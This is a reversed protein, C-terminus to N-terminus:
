LIAGEISCSNPNAKMFSVIRNFSNEKGPRFDCVAEKNGVIFLANKGRSLAVNLRREDKLFGIKNWSNSRVLSYFVIAAESGQFADINDIKIEINTWKPSDPNIDNLLLEKQASYGSIVAVEIKENFEKNKYTENINELHRLIVKSELRNRFSKNVEEELNSKEYSTDLWIVQKDYNLHHKRKSDDARSKIDYKPYFVNNVLKSINSHMRFQSLLTEQAPGGESKEFIEEFLSKELIKKNLKLNFENDKALNVIPPLQKHDGVLIIKKGLLMPLLLEPATARAAEDIIVWDYRLNQLVHRSAIGVCTSAVISAERAFIDDFEDILGIRNNWDCIIEVTKILKQNLLNEDIEEKKIHKNKKLNVQLYKNVLKDNYLKSLFDYTFSTSNSKVEDAWQSIQEAALFNSSEKSIKDSNGIRIIRKEQHHKVINKLLHDVAVHSPSTILVKAESDELYIQNIIETIITSKGTGPPGQILFLDRTKLADEIVKLNTHDIEKNVLEINLDINNISLISPDLLIEILNKNVGNNDELMYLANNYRKLVNNSIDIKAEGRRSLETYEVNLDFAVIILNDKIERIMGVSKLKKSDKLSLKLYDGEQILNSDFYNQMKVKLLNKKEDYEISEYIGLNERHNNIKNIDRIVDKWEQVLKNISASKRRNAEYKVLNKNIDTILTDFEKKLHSKTPINQTLDINLPLDIGKEKEFENEAYTDISFVRTIRFYGLENNPVIQYRIEDGILYYTNNPTKYISADQLSREIYNKVNYFDVNSIKGIQVLNTGVIRPVFIKLSGEKHSSLRIEQELDSIFNLTSAYRNEINPNTANQIIKKIENGYKLNQIEVLFEEEIEPPEIEAILYFLICGISYIDSRADIKRGIKHEPSAYRKTIYDKLTLNSRYANLDLIKSIGFDIVKIKKEENILINSPKIDRHIIRKDHADQIGNLIDLVIQLKETYELPNTKVYDILNQSKFYEMAIYFNGIYSGSDKYDIINPNNLLSLAKSDRKFIEELDGENSNLSNKLIKLTVKFNKNKINSALYIESQPGKYITEEIIYKNDIIM